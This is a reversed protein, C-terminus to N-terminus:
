SPESSSKARISAESPPPWNPRLAYQPSLVGDVSNAGIALALDHVMAADRKGARAYIWILAVLAAAALLGFPVLSGTVSAGGSRNVAMAVAVASCGIFLLWAIAVQFPDLQTRAEAVTGWDHRALHVRTSGRPLGGSTRITAREPSSWDVRFAHVNLRGNPDEASGVDILQRCEDLTGPAHLTHARQALLGSM